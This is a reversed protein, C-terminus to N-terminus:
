HFKCHSLGIFYSSVSIWPFCGPHPTSNKSIYLITASHSFSISQITSLFWITFRFVYPRILLLLLLLLCIIHYTIVHREHSKQIEFYISLEVTIYGSSFMNGKLPCFDSLRSFEIGLWVVRCDHWQELMLGKLFFNLIYQLYHCFWPQFIWM